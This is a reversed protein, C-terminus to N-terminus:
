ASAKWAVYAVIGVGLVVALGIGVNRLAVGLGAAWEDLAKLPGAGTVNFGTAATSPHAALWSARLNNYRDVFTVLEDRTTNWARSVWSTHDAKWPLFEQTFADWENEFGEDVGITEDFVERSMTRVAAALREAGSAVSDPTFLGTLELDAV